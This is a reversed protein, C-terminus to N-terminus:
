RFRSLVFSLEINTQTNEAVCTCHMTADSFALLQLYFGTTQLM